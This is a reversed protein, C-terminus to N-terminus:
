RKDSRDWGCVHCHDSGPDEWFHERDVGLSSNCSPCRGRDPALSVVFIMAILVIAGIVIKVLLWFLWGLVGRHYRM